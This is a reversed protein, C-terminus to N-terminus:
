PMSTRLLKHVRAVDGMYHDSVYEGAAKDIHERSRKADGTSEYYLGLYLHAYFLQSNRQAEPPDGRTAEALVDDASGQGAFLRHVANLPVRRDGAIPILAARAKEVGVLKVNCLYHWVANEVDQTNVTQHVEFQDVGDAYRGAYYLTIGRRWHQPKERPKAKVVADFDAASEAIKGAKFYTSGREDRTAVDNADFELVKSFDAIAGDFQRLASRMRGRLGFAKADRPQETIHKDMLALAEATQGQRFLGAANALTEDGRVLPGLTVLGLVAICRM